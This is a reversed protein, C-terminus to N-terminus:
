ERSFVLREEDEHAYVYRWEQIGNEDFINSYECTMTYTEGSKPPLYDVSYFYLPLKDGAKLSLPRCPCREKGDKTMSIRLDVAPGNGVNELTFAVIMQPYFVHAYFGEGQKENVSGGKEIIRKKDRPIELHPCIFDEGLDFCLSTVEEESYSQASDVMEEEDPLEFLGGRPQNVYRSAITLYPKVSNSRDELYRSESAKLSFHVGLVTAIGALVSGLYTLLVPADWKPMLWWPASIGYLCYVVFPVVVLAIILLVAIFKPIKDSM